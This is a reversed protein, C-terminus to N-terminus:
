LGTFPIHASGRGRGRQRNLREQMEDKAKKNFALALIKEAPIGQNLMHLIRNVLTKTKGSVAPALVRIPGNLSTVAAQQSPDLDNDM